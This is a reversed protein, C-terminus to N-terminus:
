ISNVSHRIELFPITDTNYDVAYYYTVHFGNLTGANSHAYKNECPLKRIVIEKETSGSLIVTIVLILRATMKFKAM